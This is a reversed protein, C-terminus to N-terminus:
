DVVGNSSAAFEVCRRTAKQPQVVVAPGAVCGGECGMVEVFNGDCGHQAWARLQKFSKKNLGDVCVPRVEVRDRIHAKVGATVGGSVPFSRGERLAPFLFEEDDCAAPDVDAAALMAFVEQFTLVYNVLEDRQGENRKAVCPGIFVTLAEPLHEKVMAATYHMPTHTDSVYSELEPLHKAVLHTYAPCCSSTMFRAGHSMREVFEDAELAATTDAGSAVEAVSSFGLRHLAAAVQGIRGKMQGAIAPAVLAVVPRDERLRRLVDIIQSKELVAAFPCAAMCKGCFICREYDIVQKGYSDKSIAGTPCSEECPIPIQVIAHYPCAKMCKGCQICKAPDITSKGAVISVADKPCHQVCAEALCGRCANTAEYHTRVCGNCAEDIFTLMNGNVERRELAGRAYTGLSVLEDHEDEIAYGLVAMCRYRIIARDRYICCRTKRAKRPRMVIPIRRVDEEFSDGHFAKAIRVMIEFNITNDYTRFYM